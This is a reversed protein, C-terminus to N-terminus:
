IIIPFYSVSETDNEKGLGSDISDVCFFVFMDQLIFFHFTIVKLFLILMHKDSIVLIQM